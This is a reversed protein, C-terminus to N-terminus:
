PARVEIFLVPKEIDGLLLDTVHMSVPFRGAHRADFALVAPEGSVAMVEVDYGHLHLIGSGAGLITLVLQRGQAVELTRAGGDGPDVTVTLHDSPLASPATTSADHTKGDHARAPLGAGAALALALLVVAASCSM